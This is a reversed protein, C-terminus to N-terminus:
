LYEMYIFPTLLENSEYKGYRNRKYLVNITCLDPSKCGSTQRRDSFSFLFIYHRRKM